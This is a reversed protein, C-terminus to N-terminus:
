GVSSLPVDCHGRGVDNPCRKPYGRFYATSIFANGLGAAQERGVRSM